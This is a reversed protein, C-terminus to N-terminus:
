VYIGGGVIVMTSSGVDRALVKEVNNFFNIISPTKNKHNRVM